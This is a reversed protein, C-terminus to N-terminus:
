RPEKLLIKALLDFFEDPESGDNAVATNFLDVLEDPPMENVLELIDELQKIIKVKSM